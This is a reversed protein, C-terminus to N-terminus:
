YTFVILLILEDFILVILFCTTNPRFGGDFMSKKVQDITQSSSM